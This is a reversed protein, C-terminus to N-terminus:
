STSKNKFYQRFDKNFILYYGIIVHIIFFAFYIILPIEAALIANIGINACFIILTILLSLLLIIAIIKKWLKKNKILKISFIVLVFLPLLSIVLLIIYFIIIMFFNMFLAFMGFLACISIVIGAIRAWEKRNKIGRGVFVFLVLLAISIPIYFLSILIFLAYGLSSDREVFFIAYLIWFITFLLYAANFYYLSIYKLRKETIERKDKDNKKFLYNNKVKKQILVLLIGFSAFILGVYFVVASYILDFNVFLSYISYGIKVLAITLLLVFLIYCAVSLIKIGKPVDEKKLTKGM